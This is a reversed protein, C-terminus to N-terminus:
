GTWRAPAGSRTDIHVFGRDVYLGFGYKDPYQNCLYKYTKEPDAVILDAARAKVHHSNVAGGVASNHNVCRCGSSVTVPAGEFDRVENCVRLTDIDVTDFGCSCRCAFEKRKFHSM